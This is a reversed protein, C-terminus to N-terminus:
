RDRGSGGSRAEDILRRHIIPDTAGETGFVLVRSASTLGLRAARVPADVAGALGALGAVASEGAEISSERELREMFPGIPRDDISLLDDVARDIVPWALTSVEGCSLGAMVSETRIDVDIRRGALVSELLCAAPDPEVTVFRPRAVGFRSWLDVCVAAAMGGVGGQLFVHTPPSEHPWRDAAESSMLTYGAMVLRPAPASDTGATDSVVIWGESAAARAVARVSDDYNGPVRVVRAGYGEIAAQRAHSVHEHIYVVCRCGFRQAGWAVSRGHNGDTATAVTVRGALGAHKRLRVDELTVVTGCAAGLADALLSQVAYAGGLSKFSGPDFRDREDKYEIAALGLDGALEPLSRLPTPEYGDWRVIADMARRREPVPLAAEIGAPCDTGRLARSNSIQRMIAIRSEEKLRMGDADADVCVTSPM